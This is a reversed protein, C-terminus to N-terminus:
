ISKDITAPPLSPGISKDEKTPPLSPGISIDDTRQPFSPGIEKNQQSPPFSPGITNDSSGIEKPSHAPPLSPGIEKSTQPPGAPGTSPCISPGVRPRKRDNAISRSQSVRKKSDEQDSTGYEKAYQELIEMFAPIPQAQPRRRQIMQLADDMSM